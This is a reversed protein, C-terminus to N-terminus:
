LITRLEPPVSGSLRTWAMSLGSLKRLNGIEPPISGTLNDERLDLETVDGSEDTTVGRWEDLPASTKWNDSNAWAPGGLADYVVTLM